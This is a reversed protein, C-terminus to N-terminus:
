PRDDTLESVEKQKSRARTGGAQGAVSFREDAPIWKAGATLTGPKLETRGADRIQFPMTEIDSAKGGIVVVPVGPHAGLALLAAHIAQAAYKGRSMNPGHNMVVVLKQGYHDPM